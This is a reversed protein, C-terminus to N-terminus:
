RKRMDHFVPFVGVQKPLNTQSLWWELVAFAENTAGAADRVVNAWHSLM